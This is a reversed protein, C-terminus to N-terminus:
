CDNQDHSNVFKSFQLIKWFCFKLYKKSTKSVKKKKKTSIEYSKELSGIFVIKNISGITFKM